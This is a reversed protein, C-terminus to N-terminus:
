YPSLTKNDAVSALLNDLTGITLEQSSLPKLPLSGPISLHRLARNLHILFVFPCCVFLKDSHNGLRDMLLQLVSIIAFFSFLQVDFLCVLLCIFLNDPHNRLPGMIM